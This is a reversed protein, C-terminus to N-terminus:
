LCLKFAGSPKSCHYAYGNEDGANFVELWGDGVQIVLRTWNEIPNGEVSFDGQGLIVSQIPAGLAPNIPDIGNEVWRVTHGILPFPLSLDNAIWLEDCKSWAISVTDGADTFLRIPVDHWARWIGDDFKLEATEYRMLRAGIVNQFGARICEIKEEVDSFGEVSESM